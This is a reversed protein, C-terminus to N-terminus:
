ESLSEENKKAEEIDTNDYRQKYLSQSSAGDFGAKLIFSGNLVNQDTDLTKLNDESLVIVKKLTHNVMSQLKSEASTETVVLDEPYCNSKEKFLTHLTPYINANHKISSNRIMQYQDDSLDCNVKLSLAEKESMMIPEKSDMSKRIESAKQISEKVVYAFDQLDGSSKASKVAALALVEPDHASLGVVRTRKSREGLDKWDKKPRGGSFEKRSVNDAKMVIQIETQLWKKEKMLLRDYTKNVAIWKAKLKIVLIRIKETLKESHVKEGDLGESILIEEYLLSVIDKNTICIERVKPILDIIKM